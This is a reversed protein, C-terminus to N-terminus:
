KGIRELLSAAREFAKASREAHRRDTLHGSFDHLERLADALEEATPPAVCVVTADVFADRVDAIRARWYAGLCVPTLEWSGISVVVMTGNPLADIEQQTLPKNM